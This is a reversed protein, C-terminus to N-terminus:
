ISLFAFIPTINEFNILQKNVKTNLLEKENNFWKVFDTNLSGRNNNQLWDVEYREYDPADLEYIEAM